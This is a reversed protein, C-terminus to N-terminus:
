EELWRVIGDVAANDAEIQNLKDQVTMITGAMTGLQLSTANDGKSLATIGLSMCAVRMTELWVRLEELEANM